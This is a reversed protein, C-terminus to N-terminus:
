SRFAFSIEFLSIFIGEGMFSKKVDIIPKSEEETDWPFIGVSPQDINVVFMVSGNPRGAYSTGELIKTGIVHNSEEYSNLILFLAEGTKDVSPPWSFTGGFLGAYEHSAKPARIPLKYLASLSKHMYPWAKYCRLEMAKARLSLGM